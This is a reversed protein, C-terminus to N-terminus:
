SREPELKGRDRRGPDSLEDSEPDEAKLEFSGPLSADRTLWAEFHRGGFRWDKEDVDVAHEGQEPEVVDGRGRSEGHQDIASRV